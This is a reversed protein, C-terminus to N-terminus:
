QNSFLICVPQSIKLENGTFTLRGTETDIDFVTINGSNQNAVFLLNGSPDINFNRPWEGRVPEHYILEPKGDRNIEYVAISNHGRNSGYLFKGAPHVHIDACFNEGEFDEPLTSLSGLVTMAGSGEDFMLWTITSNLENIVYIWRGSPHIAIHRPGAGPEMEAVASPTNLRGDNEVKYAMVNDTGLDAALLWSGGPVPYVSHAHASRQRRQDPGNGEHQIFGSAKELAGNELLPLLALSGGSYNAVAVHSGDPLVSIHCPHAGISSQRNIFSLMGTKKDISFASVSGSNDGNFDNIENVAYLHGALPDLALFSPNKHGEVEQIMTFEGTSIDYDYLYIGPEEASSYSGIYFRISTMKDNTNNGATGQHGCSYLTILLMASFCCLIILRKLSNKLM